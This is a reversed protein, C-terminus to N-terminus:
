PQRDLECNARTVSCPSRGNVVRETRRAAGRGRPHLSNIYMAASTPIPNPEASVATAPRIRKNQLRTKSPARKAARAMLRFDERALEVCHAACAVGPLLVNIPSSLGAASRIHRVGASRTNRPINKPRTVATASTPRRTKEELTSPRGKWLSTPASIIQITGSASAKRKPISPRSMPKGLIRQRPSLSARTANEPSTATATKV